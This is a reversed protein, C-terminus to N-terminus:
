NKTVVKLEYASTMNNLTPNQKHIFLSELIRLDQEGKTSALIEFNNIDFFTDCPGHSHERIASHKPTLSQNGTRPSKGLHESVREILKRTTSGIYSANCSACSYKYILSSKLENPLRDKYSFLSGITQKNVQVFHFSLHPYFGSLTRRLEKIMEVSQEGFYPMSFYIKKKECTDLTPTTRRTSDLFAKVKREIFNSSFGNKVFFNKM